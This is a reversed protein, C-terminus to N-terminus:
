IMMLNCGRIDSQDMRGIVEFSGDDFLKGADQTAIFSCSHINALDIVNLAGTKNTDLLAFPDYMDRVLVIMQPPCYFKGNSMSYAQSLLETMGYESHIADVQLKVQLIQYLEERTIEKRRGKMGGTESIIFSSLNQPHQEALDLLAFTVGLLFVKTTTQSKLRHIVDLFNADIQPYFGSLPHESQAILENMMFVLSSDNRELYSPLLCIFCFDKESGYFQRFNTTFSKKYLAVDKVLHKSNVTGTTGSSVFIKEPIFSGTIIEHNKFFSIPLFPIQEINSVTDPNCNLLHLYQKYVKNHIAQYRFVALALANFQHENEITFLASELAQAEM